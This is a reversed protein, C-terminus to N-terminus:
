NYLFNRVGDVNTEELTEALEKFTQLIDIFLDTQSASIEKDKISSLIKRIDKHLKSLGYIPKESGNNSDTSDPSGMGSSNGSNEFSNGASDSFMKNLSFNDLNNSNNNIDRILVESISKINDLQAQSKLLETYIKIGSLDALASNTLEIRVLTPNTNKRKYRFAHSRSRSYTFNLLQNVLLLLASSADCYFNYPTFRPSIPLDKTAVPLITIILDM